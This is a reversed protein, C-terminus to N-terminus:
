EVSGFVQRYRYVNGVQAARMVSEQRQGNTSFPQFTLGSTGLRGLYQTRGDRASGEATRHRPNGITEKIRALTAPARVSTIGALNGAASWDYFSTFNRANAADLVAPPALSADYTGTAGAAIVQDSAGAPTAFVANDSYSALHDWLAGVRDSVGDVEFLARVGVVFDSTGVARAANVGFGPATDMWTATAADFLSHPTTASLGNTGEGTVWFARQQAISVSLLRAPAVVFLGGVTDPAGYTGDGAIALLETLALMCVLDGPFYQNDVSDFSLNYTRTVAGRDVTFPSAALKGQMNVIFQAALKAAALYKATATQRYLRCFALCALGADTATLSTTGNDIAGHYGVIGITDAPFNVNGRQNAILYDGLEVAKALARTRWAQPRKAESVISLLYLMAWGAATPSKSGTIGPAGDSTTDLTEYPAVTVVLDFLKGEEAEYTPSPNFPKTNKVPRVIPIRVKANLEDLQKARRYGPHRDCIVVSGDTTFRGHTCPRGCVDCMRDFGDTVYNTADM